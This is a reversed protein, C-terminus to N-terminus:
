LVGLNVPIKLPDLEESFFRRIVGDSLVSASPLLALVHTISSAFSLYFSEGIIVASGLIYTVIARDEAPLFTNTCMNVLEQKTKNTQKAVRIERDYFM